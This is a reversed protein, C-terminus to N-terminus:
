GPVRSAGVKTALVPCWDKDAAVDLLGWSAFSWSVSHTCLYSAGEWAKRVRSVRTSIREALERDAGFPERVRVASGVEGGFSRM